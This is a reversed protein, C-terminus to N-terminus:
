WTKGQHVLYTEQCVAMCPAEEGMTKLTEIIERAVALREQNDAKNLVLRYPRSKVTKRTGWDSHLIEAVQKSTISDEGSIGLWEVALEWRFCAEKWTQGVCDLGVCGIVADTEPIIVPEHDAPIKFPLRKAGDAEILLVDCFDILKHIESPELGKLKKVDEQVVSGAVVLIGNNWKVSNLDSVHDILVTQYERPYAIHTSTTMIVRKGMGSLEEALDNMLTTKGGGGVISIIKHPHQSLGLSEWLSDKEIFNETQLEYIKM